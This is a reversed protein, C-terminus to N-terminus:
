RKRVLMVTTNTSTTAGTDSVFRIVVRVGLHGTKRLKKLQGPKAKVLVSVTTAGSPSTTSTRIKGLV